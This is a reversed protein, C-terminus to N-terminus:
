RAHLAKSCNSQLTQMATSIDAVPIVGQLSRHPEVITVELEPVSQWVHEVLASAKEPLLVLASPALAGPAVVSAIFDTSTSGAVVTVKPHTRLPLPAILVVLVDVTAGESCRLMLGTVDQDSRTGDLIKTMSITDPGGAPNRTRALQWTGAEAPQQQPASAPAKSNGEEQCRAPAREDKTGDKNAEKAGQCHEVESSAKAPRANNQCLASTAAIMCLASIATGGLPAFSRRM